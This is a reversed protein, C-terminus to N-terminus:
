ARVFSFSVSGDLKNEISINTLANLGKQYTEIVSSYLKGMARLHNAKIAEMNNRHIRGLEKKLNTLYDLADRGQMKEFGSFDPELKEVKRELSKPFKTGNKDPIFEIKNPSYLIKYNELIDRNMGSFVYNKQSETSDKEHAGFYRRIKLKLNEYAQKIKM